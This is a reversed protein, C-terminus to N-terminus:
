EGAFDVQVVAREVEVYPIETADVTACEEDAAKIRGNVQHGDTLHVVVLRGVNRRWHRPETLPAGVGRSSVELTYAEEGMADSSDLAESVQHSLEALGDSDVVDADVTVVVQRRRGAPRVEVGELDFGSAAVVDAVAATVRDSRSSM